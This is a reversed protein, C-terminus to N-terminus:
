FKATTVCKREMGQIMYGQRGCMMCLSGPLHSYKSSIRKKVHSHKSTTTTPISVIDTLKQDIKKHSSLIKRPSSPPTPITTRTEENRSELSGMDDNQKEEEKDDGDDVFELNEKHSGPEIMDESDDDDKKVIQKAKDNNKTVEKAFKMFVTKYEKFDDTERILPVDDKISHYDEEIRKTSSHPM